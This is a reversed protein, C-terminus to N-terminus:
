EKKLPPPPLTFSSIKVLDATKKKSTKGLHCKELNYNESFHDVCALSIDSTATEHIGGPQLVNLWLIEPSMPDLSDKFHYVSYYIEIEQKFTDTYKGIFSNWPFHM